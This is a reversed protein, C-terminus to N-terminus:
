RRLALRAILRLGCTSILSLRCRLSLRSILGLALCLIPGPTLSSRRGAVITRVVDVGILIAIHVALGVLSPLLSRTITPLRFIPLGAILRLSRRLLTGRLAAAAVVCLLQVLAVVLPLTAILAGATVLLRAATPAPSLLSRCAVANLSSVIIAPNWRRASM